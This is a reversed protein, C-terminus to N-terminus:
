LWPVIGRNRDYYYLGGGETGMWLRDGQRVFASIPRPTFGYQDLRQTDFGTTENLALYSIGGSYTGIWLNGQEDGAITWVSNNVISFPEKVDRTFLRHVEREPDFLYLGQQTGIWIRSQNDVYFCKAPVKNEAEQLLFDYRKEIRKERVNLVFLGKTESLVWLRDGIFRAAAIRTGEPFAYVVDNGPDRGKICFIKGWDTGIYIDRSESGLVVCQEYVYSESDVYEFSYYGGTEPIIDLGARM